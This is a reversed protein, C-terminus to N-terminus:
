KDRWLDTKLDESLKAWDAKSEERYLAMLELFDEKSILGEGDEIEAENEGKVKIITDKTVM